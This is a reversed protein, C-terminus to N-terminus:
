EEKKDEEKEEVEKEDEVVEEEEKKAEIITNNEEVENNGKKKGFLKAIAGAAAVVALIIIKAFKAFFLGLKALIGTKALLGGAILGKIGWEAIRDKTPDFDKYAYGEDYEVSNILADSMTKVKDLQSMDCVAQLKCYGEKGLIRIDYNLSTDPEASPESIFEICKAWHLVKKDKDYHPTDAWGVLNFKSMDGSEEKMKNRERMDDQLDKLLDDYDIDGAEEDKVYGDKNFYVLYAIDVTYFINASDPIFAGIVENDEENGWYDELLHKTQKADIFALGQPVHLTVNGDSLHINGTQGIITDSTLKKLYSLLENESSLSDGEVSAVTSDTNNEEEQAFLNLPLSLIVAAMLIQQIKSFLSKM